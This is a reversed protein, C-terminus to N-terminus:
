QRNSDLRESDNEREGLALERMFEMVYLPKKDSQKGYLDRFPSQEEASNEIFISDVLLCMM